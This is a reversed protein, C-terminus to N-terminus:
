TLLALTRVVFVDKQFLQKVAQVRQAIQEPPSDIPYAFGMCTGSHTTVVGLAGLGPLADLARNVFESEVRQCYLRASQTACQAIRADDAAGFADALDSFLRDFAAKQAQDFSVRRNFQVTDVMGGNDVVILTWKPIHEYNRLLVGKRHNYAVCSNYHVGDHPEIAAFVRSIFREKLLLGFVEQIARLAALMDSTSSGLGKGVPINRTFTCELHFGERIGLEELVSYLVARSKELDCEVILPGAIPRCFVECTSWLDIPLTVLFDEDNSLRGQVIEGFSSFSKGYGVLVAPDDAGRRGQLWKSRATWYLRGPKENESTLM